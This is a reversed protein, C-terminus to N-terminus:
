DEAKQLSGVIARVKDRTREFKVENQALDGPLEEFLAGEIYQYITNVSVSEEIDEIMMLRLINRGAFKKTGLLVDAVYITPPIYMRKWTGSGHPYAPLLAALTGPEYTPSPRGYKDIPKRPSGDSPLKDITEYTILGTRYGTVTDHDEPFRLGHQRGALFTRRANFSKDFGFEVSFQRTRANSVKLDDGRLGQLYMPRALDTKILPLGRKTREVTINELGRFGKNTRSNPVDKKSFVTQSSDEMRGTVNGIIGFGKERNINIELGTRASSPSLNNLHRAVLTQQDYDTDWRLRSRLEEKKDRGIQGIAEDMADHCFYMLQSFNAELFLAEIAEGKPNRFTRTGLTLLNGTSAKKPRAM